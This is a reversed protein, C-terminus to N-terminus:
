SPFVLHFFEPFFKFIFLVSWVTFFVLLLPYAIYDFFYRALLAEESKSNSELYRSLGDTLVIFLEILLVQLALNSIEKSFFGLAGGGFAVIAIPITWNRIIRIYFNFTGYIESLISSLVQVADFMSLNLKKVGM